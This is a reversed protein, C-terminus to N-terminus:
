VVECEHPQLLCESDDRYPASIQVLIVSKVEVFGYVYHNSSFALHKIKDGINIVKGNKDVPSAKTLSNVFAKGNDSRLYQELRQEVEWCNHCKPMTANGGGRRGCTECLLFVGCLEISRIIEYTGCKLKAAIQEVTLGQKAMQEQPTM